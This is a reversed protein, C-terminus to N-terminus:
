RGTKASSKGREAVIVGALWLALKVPGSGM